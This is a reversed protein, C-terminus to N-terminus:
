RLEGPACLLADGDIYDDETLLATARVNLPAGSLAGDVDVVLMLQSGAEQQLEWAPIVTATTTHLLADVEARTFDTGNAPRVDVIPLSSDAPILQAM